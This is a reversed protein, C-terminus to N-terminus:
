RGGNKLDKMYQQLKSKLYKEEPGLPRRKGITELFKIEEKMDDLIHDFKNDVKRETKRIVRRNDLRHWLKDINAGLLQYILILIGVIAALLAILLGYNSLANVIGDFLKAVWTGINLGVASSTFTISTSATTANGAKDVAKVYVMQTGAKDFVLRYPKGAQDTAVTVWSGNDGIKVEYHDVGSM